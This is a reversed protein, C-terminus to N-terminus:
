KLGAPFVHEGTEGLPLPVVSAAAAVSLSSYLHPFMAGGRSEEWKLQEGLEDTEVAVLLLDTQGAFHKAVTEVVQEATSFHIFGDSLDIEAGVFVGGMEATEWQSRSVVKYIIGM